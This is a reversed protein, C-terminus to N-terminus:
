APQDIDEIFRCLAVISPAAIATLWLVGNIVVLVLALKPAIGALEAMMASPAAM